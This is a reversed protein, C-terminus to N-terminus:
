RLEDKDVNIQHPTTPISVPWTRAAQHQFRRLNAEQPQLQDESIRVVEDKRGHEKLNETSIVAVSVLHGVSIM